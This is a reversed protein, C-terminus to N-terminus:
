LGAAPDQSRLEEAWARGAELGVMFADGARRGDMLNKGLRESDQPQPMRMSVRCGAARLAAIELELMTEAHPGIGQGTVKNTPMAIWVQEPALPLLVDANTSSHVQGDMYLRGALEVPPFMGPVASSACVALSVDIGADRDITRRAGTETDTVNVLFPREPWADIDISHVIRTDWGKQADRPMTAALKGIAAAQEPNSREMTGWLRFISGLLQLDLASRDVAPASSPAPQRRERPVHPLFGAAIQAGVIAGASTGVVVDAERLDVGREFLGATIGMEWAVGVVGGGGLVLARKYQKV